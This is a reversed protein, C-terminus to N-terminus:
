GDTWGDVWADMWRDMRGDMWAHMQGDTWGDMWGDVPESLEWRAVAGCFEPEAKEERKNSANSGM